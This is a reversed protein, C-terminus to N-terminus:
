KLKSNVINAVFEGSPISDIRNGRFRMNGPLREINNAANLLNRRIVTFRQLADPNWEEKGRGDHLVDLVTEVDNIIRALNNKMEKCYSALSYTRESVSEMDKNKITITVTYDNLM